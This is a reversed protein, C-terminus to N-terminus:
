SARQCKKFIVSETDLRQSGLCAYKQCICSRTGRFNHGVFFACGLCGDSGGQMVQYKIGEESFISGVKLYIQKRSQM